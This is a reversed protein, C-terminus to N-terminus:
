KILRIVRVSDGIWAKPLYIRGTTGQAIVPTDFYENGNEDVLIPTKRPRGM